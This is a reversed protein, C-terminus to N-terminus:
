INVRMYPSKDIGELVLTLIGAYGVERKQYIGVGSLPTIPESFVPLADLIPVTTQGADDDYNTWDMEMWNYPKSDIATNTSYIPNKWGEFRYYHRIPAKAYPMDTPKIWITSDPVLQGTESDYRTARITLYIPRTEWTYRQFRVGTIVHEPPVILTDLYIKQEEYSLVAIDENEMLEEDEGDESKKVFNFKIQSSDMPPIYQIDEPELWATTNEVIQAGSTIQGQMIKIHAIDNVMVFAMGTIVMNDDVNTVQDRLSIFHRSKSQPEDEVCICRCLDCRIEEVTVKFAYTKSAPAPCGDSDDGYVNGSHSKYWKYRKPLSGDYECARGSEGLSSCQVLRGYCTTPSYTCEYGRCGYFLRTPNKYASCSNPCRHDIRLANEQVLFVQLYKEFEHYTVDREHGGPPDCRRFQRASISMTNQLLKVYKQARQILKNQARGIDGTYNQGDLYGKMLGGFGQLAFGRMETEMVIEFLEVLRQQPPAGTGCVKLANEQTEKALLVFLSEKFTGLGTPILLGYILAIRDQVDGEDRSTCTKVLADLAYDSFSKPNKLYDHMDAYLEDVRTIYSNLLRVDASIDGLLPLLTLLTDMSQQIKEELRTGLKDISAAIENTKEMIDATSPTTLKSYADHAANVKELASWAFSILDVVITLQCHVHYQTAILGLVFLIRMTTSKQRM